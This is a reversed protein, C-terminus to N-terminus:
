NRVGKDVLYSAHSIGMLVLLSSPVDWLTGTAYVQRLFFTATALTWAFMQLRMISPNGKDSLMDRLWGVKPPRPPAIPPAAPPPVETVSVVVPAAPSGGVLVTSEPQDKKVALATAAGISTLSIGLLAWISSPFLINPGRTFYLYAYSFIVVITWLWVQFRSVSYTADADPSQFFNRGDRGRVYFTLLLILVAFGAALWGAFRTWAKPLAGSPELVSLKFSYFKEGEDAGGKRKFFLEVTYHGNKPYPPFSLAFNAEQDKTLTRHDLGIVAPAATGDPPVEGDTVYHSWAKEITLSDGGTMRVTRTALKERDRLVTYATTDPSPVLELRQALIQRPALLGLAAGVFLVGAIFRGM